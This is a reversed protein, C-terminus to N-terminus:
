PPLLRPRGAARLRLPEAFETNVLRSRDAYHREAHFVDCHVCGSRDVSISLKDVAAVDAADDVVAGPDVSLEARLVPDGRAQIEPDWQTPNGVFGVFGGETPKTPLPITSTGSILSKLDQLYNM